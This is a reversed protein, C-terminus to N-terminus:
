KRKVCSWRFPTPSFNYGLSTNLGGEASPEQEQQPDSTLLLMQTFQDQLQKHPITILNTGRLDPPRVSSGQSLKLPNLHSWHLTFIDGLLQAIPHSHNASIQRDSIDSTTERTDKSAIHASRINDADERQLREADRSTFTLTLSLASTAAATPQQNLQLEQINKLDMWPSPNVLYEEQDLKWLINFLSSVRQYKCSWSLFFLIWGYWMFYKFLFMIKFTICWNWPLISCLTMREYSHHIKFDTWISQKPWIHPLVFFLFFFMIASYKWDKQSGGASGGPMNGRNQSKVFDDWLFKWQVKGVEASFSILCIHIFYNLM